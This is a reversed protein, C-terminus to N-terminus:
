GIHIWESNIFFSGRTITTRRDNSSYEFDPLLSLLPLMKSHGAMNLVVSHKRFAEIRSCMIKNIASFVQKQDLTKIHNLVAKRLKHTSDISSAGLGLFIGRTEYIDLSDQKGNKDIGILSPNIRKISKGIFWRQLLEFALDIDIKTPAVKKLKKNRAIKLTKLSRNTSCKQCQKWM